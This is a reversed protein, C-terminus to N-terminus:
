MYPCSVFLDPGIAGLRFGYSLGDFIGTVFGGWITYRGEGDPQAYSAQVGVRVRAHM